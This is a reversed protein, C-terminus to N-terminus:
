QGRPSEEPDLCSSYTVELDKGKKIESNLLLPAM